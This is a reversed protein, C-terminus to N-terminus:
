TEAALMCAAVRANKKVMAAIIEAAKIDADKKVWASVREAMKERRAPDELLGIIRKELLEGSLDGDDIVEAAGIRVLCEVNKRQHDDAAYPYPVFLTPKGFLALEFVSSAGARSVAIDAASYVKEMEDVFPLVRIDNKFERVQQTIKKYDRDGAIIVFQVTRRSSLIRKAAELGFVSLSRAGRSGGLVLVTPLDDRLGLFRIGAQRSEDGKPKVRVPNGVVACVVRRPIYRRSEEYALLVMHSFRSLIRNAIGPVSNQEQLVRPKGCLVAALVISASAYGGTGVVVDPKFALVEKVSKILAVSFWLFTKAKAFFSAGRLGRGPLLLYPLKAEEFIKMEVGGKAGVFLIELEDVMARLSNYLAIGPFVHGGTGGGAIMVRV